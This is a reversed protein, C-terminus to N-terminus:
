HVNPLRGRSKSKINFLSLFLLTIIFPSEIIGFSFGIILIIIPFVVTCYVQSKDSFWQGSHYLLYLLSLVGFMGYRMMINGIGNITSVQAGITESYKLDTRGGIGLFPRKVFDILALEFSVFRGPAYSIDHEQSNHILEDLSQSSEVEIKTNLLDVNLYLTIAIIISIGLSFYKLVTNKSFIWFFWILLILLIVCGTTSQTTLITIFLILIKTKEKLISKNRMVNFFLALALFCSFPGPEWTFGSNRPILLNSEQGGISHVIISLYNSSPNSNQAVDLYSFVWRISDPSLIEWVFFFLSLKALFYIINEYHLLLSSGYQEILWYAIIIKVIYTVMFFPHFSNIAFSNLIFYLLWVVLARILNKNYDKFPNGYFLLGFVFLLILAESTRFFSISIGSFLIVFILFIHKIRM